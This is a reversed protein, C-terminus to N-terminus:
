LDTTMSDYNIWTVYGPQNEVAAQAVCGMTQWGSKDTEFLAWDAAVTTTVGVVAPDTSGTAVALFNSLNPASTTDDCTPKSGTAGGLVLWFLFLFLCEMYADDCTLRAVLTWFGWLRVSVLCIVVLCFRFVSRIRLVRRM